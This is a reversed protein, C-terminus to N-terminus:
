TAACYREINTDNKTCHTTPCALGPMFSMKPPDCVWPIKWLTDMSWDM